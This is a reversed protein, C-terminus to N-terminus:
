YKIMNLKLTDIYMERYTPKYFIKFVTSDYKSVNVAIYAHM